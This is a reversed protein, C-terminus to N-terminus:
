EDDDSMVKEDSAWFLYSMGMFISVYHPTKVLPSQAVMGVRMNRYRMAAFMAVDDSVQYSISARVFTSHLGARAKYAPRSPTAYINEVSYYRDNFAQSAFTVGVGLNTTLVTSPEFTWLLEPETLWGVSHLTTDVNWRLPLRFKLGHKDSDYIQWNLRPGMQFTFPLNPMGQRAQNGNRVPLGAGFSLDLSLYAGDIIKTLIGGRNVHLHPSRYIFYPLPLALQYRENSGMYQPVSALALAAGVEWKPKLEAAWLTSNLSFLTLFIISSLIRKM